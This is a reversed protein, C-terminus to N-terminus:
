SGSGDAEQKSVLTVSKSTVRQASNVFSVLPGINYNLIKGKVNMSKSSDIVSSGFNSGCLDLKLLQLWSNDRM